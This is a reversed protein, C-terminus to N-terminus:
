KDFRVLESPLARVRALCEGKDYICDSRSASEGLYRMLMRVVLGAFKM